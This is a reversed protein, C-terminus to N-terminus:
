PHYNHVHDVRFMGAYNNAINLSYASLMIHQHMNFDVKTPGDVVQSFDVIFHVNPAETGYEERVLATDSGFMVSINKINNYISSGGYGGIQFMYDQSNSPNDKYTGEMSLFVYGSAQDW